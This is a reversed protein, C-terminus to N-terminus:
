LVWPTSGVGFVIEIGRDNGGVFHLVLGASQEQRFIIKEPLIAQM